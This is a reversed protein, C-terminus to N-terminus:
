ISQNWKGRFNLRRLFGVLFRFLGSERKASHRHAENATM